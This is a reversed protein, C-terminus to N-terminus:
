LKVRTLLQDFTEKSMRLYRFHSEADQLRLEQLLNHYEGQQVRRQYIPRIAFKRTRKRKKHYRWLLLLHLFFYGRADLAAGRSSILMTFLSGRGSNYRPAADDLQAAHM